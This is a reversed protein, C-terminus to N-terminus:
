TPAPSSCTARSGEGHRHLRHDGALLGRRRRVPGHDRLDAARRRSALTNRLFIDAYGGLSVVGEQIRAGGSDNLGVIPAGISCRWTWSRASRPPTPRRCRAASCRSTRRSPTSRRPRRHPRPRHGRRRRPRDAAGHRLRPLPPHRAQRSGRVHRSRVAADMRERATLKGQRTSSRCASRAAASSPAAARTRAADRDSREDLRRRLPQQARRRGPGQGDHSRRARAPRRGVAHRHHHRRRTRADHLAHRARGPVPVPFILERTNSHQRKEGNVWGEVDLESPDLGVAICPGIPAFTDFGKARSYQVDKAQLERATVDNLCTIGLVYDM